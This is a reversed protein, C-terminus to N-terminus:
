IPSLLNKLQEIKSKVLISKLERNTELNSILKKNIAVNTFETKDSTLLLLEYAEALSKVESAVTSLSVIVSAVLKGPINAKFSVPISKLVNVIAKNDKYQVACNLMTEYTQLDVKIQHKTPWEAFYAYAYDCNKYAMSM